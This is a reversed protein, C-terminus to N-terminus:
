IKEVFNSPFVGVQGNLDGEWWGEDERLIVVIDGVRLTLEDDRQAEYDFLVRCQPESSPAGGFQGGFAQDTTAWDEQQPPPPPLEEEPM